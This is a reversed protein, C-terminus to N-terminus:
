SVQAVRFTRQEGDHETISVYEGVAFRHTDFRFIPEEDDTDAIDEYHFAWRHGGHHVLHGHEDEEGHWFRRVTCRTRLEKWGEADLHGDADLPAYFEYGRESSGDPFDPTRALHLVIRKLSM